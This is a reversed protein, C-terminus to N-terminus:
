RVLARQREAWVEWLVAYVVGALIVCTEGCWAGIEVLWM